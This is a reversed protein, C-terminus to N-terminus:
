VVITLVVTLSAPSALALAALLTGFLVSAALVPGVSSAALGALVAAAALAAPTSAASPIAAVVTTIIAPPFAISSRPFSTALQVAVGRVEVWGPKGITAEVTRGVHPAPMRLYVGHRLHWREPALVCVLGPRWVVVVRLGAQALPFPRRLEVWGRRRWRGFTTAASVFALVDGARAAALAAFAVCLPVLGLPTAAGLSTAAAHDTAAALATLARIPFSAAPASATGSATAPPPCTAVLGFHPSRLEVLLFTLEPRGAAVEKDEVQWVIPRVVVEVLIECRM